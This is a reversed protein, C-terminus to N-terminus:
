DPGGHIEKVLDSRAKEHRSDGVIGAAHLGSKARYRTVHEFLRDRDDARDDHQKAHIPFESQHRENQEWATEYWDPNETPTGPQRNLMFLFAHPLHRDRHLFRERADADDFRESAFLM